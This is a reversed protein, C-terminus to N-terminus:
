QSTYFIIAFDAEIVHTKYQSFTSIIWFKDDELDLVDDNFIYVYYYMMLSFLIKRFINIKSTNGQCNIYM